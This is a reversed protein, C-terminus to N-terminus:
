YNAQHVDNQFNANPLDGLAPLSPATAPWAPTHEVRIAPPALKDHLYAVQEGVLHASYAVASGIVALGFLVGVKRRFM